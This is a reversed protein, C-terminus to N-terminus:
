RTIKIPVIAHSKVRNGKVAFVFLFAIALLKKVLKNILVINIAVNVM